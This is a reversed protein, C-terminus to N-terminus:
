DGLKEGGGSETGPASEGFVHRRGRQGNCLGDDSGIRAFSGEWADSRGRLPDGSDYGQRSRVTGSVVVEIREGARFEVEDENEPQFDHLAYVYEVAM